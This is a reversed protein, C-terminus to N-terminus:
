PTVAVVAKDQHGVACDIAEFSGAGAYPLVRRAGAYVCTQEVAPTGCERYVVTAGSITFHRCGDVRQSEAVPLAWGVPHGDLQNPLQACGSAVLGVILVICRLM